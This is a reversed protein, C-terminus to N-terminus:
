AVSMCQSYIRKRYCHHCCGKVAHALLNQHCVLTNESNEFCNQVQGCTAECSEPESGYKPFGGAAIDSKEAPVIVYKIGELEVLYTQPIVGRAVVRLVWRKPQTVEKFVAATGNLEELSPFFGSNRKDTSAHRFVVLRGSTDPEDLPLPDNLVKAILKIGKGGGQFVSAAKMPDERSRVFNKLRKGSDYQILTVTEKADEYQESTRLFYSPCDMLSRAETLNNNNYIHVQKKRFTSDESSEPVRSRVSTSKWRCKKGDGKRCLEPTVCCEARESKFDEETCNRGDTYMKFKPTLYGIGCEGRKESANYVDRKIDNPYVVPQRNSFYDTWASWPQKKSFTANNGSDVKILSGGVLVLDGYFVGAPHVPENAYNGGEAVYVHSNLSPYFRAGYQANDNGSRDRQGANFDRSQTEPPTDESGNLTRSFGDQPCSCSQPHSALLILCLTSLVLAVLAIALTAYVADIPFSKEENRAFRYRGFGEGADNKELLPRGLSFGKWAEVHAGGPGKGRRRLPGVLPRGGRATRQVFDSGRLFNEYFVSQVAAEGM